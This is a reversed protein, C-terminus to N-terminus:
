APIVNTITQNSPSNGSFGVVHYEGAGHGVVQDDGEWYTLVDEGKFKQVRFNYAVVQDPGTAWVVAGNEDLIVPTPRAIKGRPSIFTYQSRQDTHKWCADSQQLINVRPAEIGWATAFQHIPYSGYFGADYEVSSVYPTQDAAVPTILHSSTAALLILHTLDQPLTLLAALHSLRM